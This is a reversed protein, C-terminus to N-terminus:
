VLRLRAALAAAEARSSVDLKNFINSVHRDVTRGSIGLRAAIARNTEGAVLGALVQLERASLSFPAEPDASALARLRELEPQAGLEELVSRAAEFSLRAGDEDGLLRRAQGLLVISKAEEFPAGLERWGAVALRLRVAADSPAGSALAVAGLLHDSAAALSPATLEAALEALAQAARRAEDVQGSALAVEAIAPLLRARRAPDTSEEISRALGGQALQLEGQALRLLALGPQPNAGALAAAEYEEAAAAFDGRLRALEGRQYRVAAAIRKASWSPVSELAEDIESVAADWAGRFLLMEARAVRCEGTFAVLSTQGDCWRTLAETWEFARQLAHAAKCGDILSCYVIGTVPPKLTGTTVAVMAEDLLEFGSRLKGSRVEIRGLFQLALAVLDADQHRQGIALAESAAAHAEALKQEGIASMTEGLAVYGHVACEGDLEAVLRRGRAFWGAAQAGAGSGALSLALWCVCYAAREVDGLDLYRQQARDLLAEYDGQRGLMYACTAWLELDPPPLPVNADAEAFREFADSWSGLLYARRGSEPDPPGAM